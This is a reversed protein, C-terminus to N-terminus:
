TWSCERIITCLASLELITFNKYQARDTGPWRSQGDYGAADDDNSVYIDALVGVASV